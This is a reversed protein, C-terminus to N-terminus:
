RYVSARPYLIFADYQDKPRIAMRRHHYDLDVRKESFLPDDLPLFAARDDARSALLSLLEKNGPEDRFSVRINNGPGDMEITGEAPIAKVSFSSGATVPSSEHLYEALWEKETGMFHKKQGHYSGVNVLAPGDLESLRRDVLLKIVEERQAHAAAYDEDYSERIGVSLIEIEVLESVMDYWRTGWASSLENRHDRLYEAYEDLVSIYRSSELYQGEPTLLAERLEEMCDSDGILESIYDLSSVFYYPHHNIDCGSVSLREDEGLRANYERIEALIGPTHELLLPDAENIRGTSYETLMWSFGHPYELILGRFGKPHLAKAMERVLSHHELVGHYEGLVVVAYGSLKASLADPIDEFDFLVADREIIAELENRAAMEGRSCAALICSVAICLAVITTIRRTGVLGTFDLM